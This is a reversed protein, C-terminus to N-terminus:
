GNWNLLLQSPCGGQSRERGNLKPNQIESKRKELWTKRVGATATQQLRRRERRSGARGAKRFTSARQNRRRHCQCHRLATSTWRLRPETMYMLGCGSSEGKPIGFHSFAIRTGGITARSTSVPARTKLSAALALALGAWLARGIQCALNMSGRRPYVVFAEELLGSFTPHDYELWVTQSHTASACSQM